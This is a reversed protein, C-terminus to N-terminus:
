RNGPVRLSYSNYSKPQPKKDIMTTLWDQIQGGGEDTGLAGAVETWAKLEAQCQILSDPHCVALSDRADQVKQNVLALLLRFGETQQVSHFKSRLNVLEDVDPM